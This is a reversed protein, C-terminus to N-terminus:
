SIMESCEVVNKKKM